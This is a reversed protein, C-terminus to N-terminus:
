ESTFCFLREKFNCCYSYSAQTVQVAAFHRFRQTLSLHSQVFARERFFFTLLRFKRPTAITSTNRYYNSM